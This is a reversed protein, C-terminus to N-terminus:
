KYKAEKNHPLLLNNGINTTSYKAEYVFGQKLGM